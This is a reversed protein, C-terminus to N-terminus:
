PRHTAQFCIVSGADDDSPVRKNLVDTAAMILEANILRHDQPQHSGEVLQGQSRVLGLILPRVRGVEGLAVVGRSAM